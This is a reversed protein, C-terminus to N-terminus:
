VAATGPIPEAWFQLTRRHEGDLYIRLEYAGAKPLVAGRLDVAFPMQLAEGPKAVDANGVSVEADVRAVEEGDEGVVIIQLQHPHEAELRDLEVVLALSIGLQAPFTERHVRTIGGSLVFLLGERVQTHDCLLATTVDICDVSIV